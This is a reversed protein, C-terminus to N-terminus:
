IVTFAAARTGSQTDGNIVRANWSGTVAGAPIRFSCTLRGAGLVTVNTATIVSAGRILQVTPKPTAVFGTGTLSTINVLRGRQGTAPTLSLVTPAVPTKVMFANFRTGSQNDANTVRITWNGIVAGAPIKVTCRIRSPTLITVNTATITPSGTKLLYTKAGAIFGTGSVNSLTVLTGRIGSAPTVSNVTPAVPAKVMYGNSLTGSRGYFNVVEVNRNGLPAGAPIPFTCTIRTPSVTVNTAAIRPYGTKNLFVRTGPGFNRGTITTVASLRGRIGTKPVIGTVVPVARSPYSVELSSYLGKCIGPDAANADCYFLYAYADNVWPTSPAVNDTVFNNTFYFSTTGTRNVYSNNNLAFNVGGPTTNFKAYAVDASLRTYSTRGWDSAVYNGPDAPNADIISANTTVFSNFKSAGYMKVTARTVSVANTLSSTPFTLLARSWHAYMGEPHSSPMTVPLYWTVGPEQLSNATVASRKDSWTSNTTNGITAYNSPYFRHSCLMGSCESINFFAPATTDSGDANSATHRISWNGVGLTLTAEASTSFTFPTNNGTVNTATWEWATSANTSTDIFTMKMDPFFGDPRIVSYRAVPPSLVPTSDYSVELYAPNGYCTSSAAATISCAYLNATQASAWSPEQDDVTWNFALGLVTIGTKNVYSINVGSFTNEGSEAWDAYTIDAAQRQYSTRSWDGVVYSAPNAPNADILSIRFSGLGNSKWFGYYSVDATQVTATYPIVTTDFTTLMKYMNSYAGPTTSTVLQVPNYENGDWSNTGAAANRTGAWTGETTNGVSGDFLPYFRRNCSTGSCDNITFSAADSQDSGEANTVTLRIIYQGNESFIIYPNRITSFVVPTNNGTVHTFRWQWTIPSTNTSTDLCKVLFAPYNGEPTDTSFSAVPLPGSVTIYGSRSLMNDGGPGTVTLNVTYTGAATYEHSPDRLTSTAGDGFEWLRSTIAGTSADTFDVTLPMNGSTPTGSFDAVPGTESVTIYGSRSLMDNGGPGTVTLNVTYTGAATYEYSPDQDTSTAGDGFEWLRSTIAGTSADTFAVTLPVNGSTPTGSFDAVPAPVAESVTIYSTKLEISSGDVNTANLRIDYTGAPFDFVPHRDTSFETWVQTANQYEWAWTTPENQSDETFTVTLPAPGSTPTGTFNAVPVAASAIGTLLCLAILLIFHQKM